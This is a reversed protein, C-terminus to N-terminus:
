RFRRAAERLEIVEKTENWDPRRGIKTIFSEALGIDTIKANGGPDIIGDAYKVATVLATGNIFTLAAAFEGRFLLEGM